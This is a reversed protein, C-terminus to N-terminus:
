PMVDWLCTQANRNLQGKMATQLSPRLCALAKTGDPHVTHTRCVHLFATRATYQVWSELVVAPATVSAANPAQQAALTTLFGHARQLHSPQLSALAAHSHRAPCCIRMEICQIALWMYQIAEGLRCWQLSANEHEDLAIGFASLEAAAQM